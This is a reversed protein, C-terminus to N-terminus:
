GTLTRCIREIQSSSRSLVESWRLGGEADSWSVLVSTYIPLHFVNLSQLITFVGIHYAMQLRIGFCSRLAM